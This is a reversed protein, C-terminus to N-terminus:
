KRADKKSITIKIKPCAQHVHRTVGTLSPGSAGVLVRRTCSAAAGMVVLVVMALRRVMSVVQGRVPVLHLALLVRRQGVLTM